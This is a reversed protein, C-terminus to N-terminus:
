IAYVHRLVLKIKKRVSDVAEIFSQRFVTSGFATVDGRVLEGNNMESVEELKKELIVNSLRMGKEDVLVRERFIDLPLLGNTKPFRDLKKAIFPM